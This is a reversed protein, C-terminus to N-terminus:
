RSRSWFKLSANVSFGNFDTKALNYKSIGKVWRYHTGLEVSFFKKLNWSLNILNPEFIFFLRDNKDISDAVSGMGIFVQLPFKFRGSPNNTYDVDLGFYHMKLYPIIGTSASNNIKIKDSMLIYYSGGLSLGSSM